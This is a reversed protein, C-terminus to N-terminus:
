NDKRVFTEESSWHSAGQASQTRFTLALLALNGLGPLLAVKGEGKREQFHFNPVKLDLQVRSNLLAVLM